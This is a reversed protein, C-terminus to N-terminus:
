YKAMVQFSNEQQQFLKKKCVLKMYKISTKNLKNEVKPKYNQILPNKPTEISSKETSFIHRDQGSKGEIKRWLKTPKEFRSEEVIKWSFCGENSGFGFGILVFCYMFFDASTFVPVFLFFIKKNM